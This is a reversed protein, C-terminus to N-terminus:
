FRITGAGPSYTVPGQPTLATSQFGVLAPDVGAKYSTLAGPQPSFVGGPTGTIGSPVASRTAPPQPNPMQFYAPTGMFGANHSTFPITRVM